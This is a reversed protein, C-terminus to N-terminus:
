NNCVFVTFNILEPVMWFSRTERRRQSTIIRKISRKRSAKNGLQWVMKLSSMDQQRAMQLPSLIVELPMVTM